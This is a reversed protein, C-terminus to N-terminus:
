FVEEEESQLLAEDLPMRLRGHEVEGSYVASPIYGYCDARAFVTIQKDNKVGDAIVDCKLSRLFTLLAEMAQQRNRDETYPAMWPALLVFDFPLEFLPTLASDREGCGALLSKVKLLKMSLLAMRVKERDEYLVTRPFELCLKEPKDFGNEDLIAKLYGYFDVQDVIKPTVRATVFDVNRGKEEFAKVAKIADGINWKTLREGRETADAAYSYKEPPIVGEVVSNIYTFSRYAVPTKRYCGNIQSFRMELPLVCSQITMELYEAMMSRAKEDAPIEESPVDETPEETLVKEDENMTLVEKALREVISKLM